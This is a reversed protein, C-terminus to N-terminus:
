FLAPRGHFLSLGSNGVLFLRSAVLQGCIALRQVILFRSHFIYAEWVWGV